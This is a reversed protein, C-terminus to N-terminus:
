ETKLLDILQTLLWKLKEVISQRSCIEMQFLAYDKIGLSTSLLFHRDIDYDEGLHNRVGSLFNEGNEPKEKDAICFDELLINKWRILFYGLRDTTFKKILGDFPREDPASMYYTPSRQLMTIHSVKEAM